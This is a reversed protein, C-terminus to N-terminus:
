AIPATSGARRASAAALSERMAELSYPKELLIFGEEVAQTAKDSYGTALVIPVESHYDRVLRGLELGSMGPMAIDSLVLDIDNRRNLTDVAKEGSEVKIVNCGCQELYDAAIIAVDPNDEVLLVRARALSSVVQGTREPPAELREKSVPLFLTFRSGRGLESTVTVTGRSQNVFGFVQSLGLGTGRDVPKTTFFPEFIKERIEAPIGTGTDTVSIAAFTGQLNAPTQGEPPEARTLAITIKGGDPMADRANVTLNLLAIELESPDIKVAITERPLNVEFTIDGTVSQALVGRLAEICASLDIVQPSLTRRRSFSLLKKTLAEGKQVALEIMDLSRGQQGDPLTRKLKKASGGIVMLLNNFDHAVGGTIQGM